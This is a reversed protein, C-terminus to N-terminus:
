SITKNDVIDTKRKIPTKNGQEDMLSTNELIDTLNNRFGAVYEQRLKQQEIKEEESLGTERGKKALENIRQIRSDIM